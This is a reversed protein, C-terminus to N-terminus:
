KIPFDILLTGNLKVNFHIFSNVSGILCVNIHIVIVVVVVIM